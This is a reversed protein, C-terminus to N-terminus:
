PTADSGNREAARLVSKPTLMDDLTVVVRRRQRSFVLANEPIGQGALRTARPLDWRPDVYDIQIEAGAVTRAAHRLGRLLRSIPRFMLHRRDMFCTVRITGQTEALVGRTRESVRLVRNVPIEWTLVENLRFALVVFLFSFVVGFVVSLVTTIRLAKRGSAPIEGRKIEKKM